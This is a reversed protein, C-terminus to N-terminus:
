SEPRWWRPRPPRPVAKARLGRCSAGRGRFATAQVTCGYFRRLLHTECECTDLYRWTREEAHDFGALNM